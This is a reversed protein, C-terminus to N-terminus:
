QGLHGLLKALTLDTLFRCLNREISDWFSFLTLLPSVYCPRAVARCFFKYPPNPFEVFAISLKINVHVYPVLSIVLNSRVMCGNIGDM